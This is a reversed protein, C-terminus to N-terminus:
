GPGDLLDRLKNQFEILDSESPRYGPTDPDVSPRGMEDIMWMGNEGDSFTVKGSVMAGPRAIQDVTAVVPQFGGEPVPAAAGVQPNDEIPSEESLIDEAVEAEPEEEIVFKLDLDLSLFRTDMYTVSFGFDDKLRKQVESMQAGEAVWGHIAEKQDETLQSASFM